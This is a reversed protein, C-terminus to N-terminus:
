PSHLRAVQRPLKGTWTLPRGDIGQEKLPSIHGTLVGALIIDNVALNRNTVHM